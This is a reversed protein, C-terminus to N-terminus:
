CRKARRQRSLKQHSLNNVVRRCRRQGKAFHLLDDTPTMKFSIARDGTLRIINHQEGDSSTEYSM